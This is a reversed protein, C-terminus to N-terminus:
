DQDHQPESSPRVVAPAAIFMSDGILPVEGPRTPRNLSHASQQIGSRLREKDEEAIPAYGLLEWAIHSLKIVTNELAEIREYLNRGDIRKRGSDLLLLAIEKFGQDEHRRINQQLDELPSKVESHHLRRTKLDKMPEYGIALAVLAAKCKPDNMVPVTVEELFSIFEAGTEVKFEALLDPRKQLKDVTMGQDRRMEQFAKVLQEVTM